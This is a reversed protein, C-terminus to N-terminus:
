GDITPPPYIAFVNYVNTVSIGGLFFNASRATLSCQPEEIKVAFTGGASHWVYTKNYRKINTHYIEVKEGMEPLTYIRIFQWVFLNPMLPLYLTMM